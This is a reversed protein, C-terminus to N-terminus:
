HVPENGAVGDLVLYHGEVGALGLQEGSEDVVTVREAGCEGGGVDAPQEGSPSLRTLRLKAAGDLAAFDDTQPLIACTRSAVSEYSQGRGPPCPPCTKPASLVYISTTAIRSFACWWVRRPEDPRRPLPTM